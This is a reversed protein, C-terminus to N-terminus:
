VRVVRRTDADTQGYQTDGSTRTKSMPQINHNALNQPAKRPLAYWPLSDPGREVEEIALVKCKAIEIDPGAEPKMLLTENLDGLLVGRVSVKIQGFGLRMVVEQGIWAEFANEM